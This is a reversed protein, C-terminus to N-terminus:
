PRLDYHIAWEQLSAVEVTGEVVLKMTAIESPAACTPDRQDFVALLEVTVGPELRFPPSTSRWCALKNSAHLFATAYLVPGGTPNRLAFRMRIRGDCGSADAQCGNLTAGPPPDAALFTIETPGTHTGPNAASPTAPPTPQVCCTTHGEEGSGCGALLACFAM